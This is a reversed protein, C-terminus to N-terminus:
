GELLNDIFNATEDNHVSALVAQEAECGIMAEEGTVEHVSGKFCMDVHFTWGDPCGSFFDSRQVCDTINKVTSM